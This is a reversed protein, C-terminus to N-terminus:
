EEHGAGDFDGVRCCERSRDCAELDQRFTQDGDRGEGDWREFDEACDAEEVGFGFSGAEEDEACEAGAEGDEVPLSEDTAEGRVASAEAFVRQEFGCRWDTHGAGSDEKKEGYGGPRFGQSASGEVVVLVSWHRV